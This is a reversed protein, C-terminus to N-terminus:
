MSQHIQNTYVVLLAKSGRLHDEQSRSPLQPTFCPGLPDCSFPLSSSSLLFLCGILHVHSLYPSVKLSKSSNKRWKGNYQELCVHTLAFKMLSCCIRPQLGPLSPTQNVMKAAQFIPSTFKLGILFCLGLLTFKEEKCFTVIRPEQPRDVSCFATWDGRPWTAM